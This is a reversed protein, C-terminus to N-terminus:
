VGVGRGLCFYVLGGWCGGVGFCSFERLGINVVVLMDLFCIIM